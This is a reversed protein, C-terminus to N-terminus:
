IFDSCSMKLSKVVSSTPVLITAEAITTTVRGM